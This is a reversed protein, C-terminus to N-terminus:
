FEQHMEVVRWTTDAEQIHTAVTVWPLVERGYHWRGNKKVYLFEHQNASTVVLYTGDEYEDQPRNKLDELHKRQAALESELREVKQETLRIRDAAEDYHPCWRSHREGCCYNSDCQRMMKAEGTQQQIRQWFNEELSQIRKVRCDWAHPVGGYGLCALCNQNPM